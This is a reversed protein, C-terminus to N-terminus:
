TQPPPFPHPPPLAMTLGSPPSAGAQGRAGRVDRTRLRLRQAAITRLSCPAWPLPEATEGPLQSVNQLVPAQRVREAPASLM